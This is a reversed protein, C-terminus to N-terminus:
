EKLISNLIDISTLINSKQTGINIRFFGKGNEGFDIGLQIGLGAQVCKDYFYNDNEFQDPIKIFLLFTSQSPLIKYESNLLDHYIKINNLLYKKLDNVYNLGNSYASISAQIAITNMKPYSFKDRQGLFSQQLNDNSFIVFSSKLGAINFTKTPGSLVAMNVKKSFFNVLSVFNNNFVLDSHIEDSIIPLNYKEALNVISQLESRSWVKGGPNHPNCLLLLKPNKSIILKELETFNIKFTNKFDYTLNYFMPKRDTKEVTKFFPFYIPNFILVNDNPKTLIRILINMSSMVTSNDIIPFHSIDDNHYKLYWKNISKFFDDPVYSYGIPSSKIRKILDNIITQDTMFDTDAVWMPLVPAGFYQMRLDWKECNTNERDVPNNFNIM